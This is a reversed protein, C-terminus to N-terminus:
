LSKDLNDYVAQSVKDFAKSDKAVSALLAGVVHDIVSGGSFKGQQATM